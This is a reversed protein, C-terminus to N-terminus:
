PCSALAKQMQALRADRGAVGEGKPGKLWDYEQKLGACRGAQQQSTEPPQAVAVAAKGTGKKQATAADLVERPAKTAGVSPKSKSEAAPASAPASPAGSRQACGPGGKDSYSVKGAGDVCRFQQAQAPAVCALAAALAVGTARMRIM